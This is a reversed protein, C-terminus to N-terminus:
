EKRLRLIDNHKIAHRSNLLNERTVTIPIREVLALGYHKAIAVTEDITPIVIRSGSVTTFSDGLVIALETRPLLRRALQDFVRSMSVFYRTLVTPTQKKRFGARWDDAVDVELRELFERTSSPLYEHM